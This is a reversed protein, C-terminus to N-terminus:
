RALKIHIAESWLLHDARVMDIESEEAEGVEDGQPWVSLM